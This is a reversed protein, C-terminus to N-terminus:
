LSNAETPGLYRHNAEEASIHPVLLGSNGHGDLGRMVQTDERPEGLGCRRDGAFLQSCPFIGIGLEYTRFALIQM